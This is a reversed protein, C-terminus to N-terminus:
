EETPEYSIELEKELADKEKQLEDLRTTLEAREEESVEVDEYVGVTVEEGTEENVETTESLVYGDLRNSVTELEACVEVYRQTKETKDKTEENTKEMNKILQEQYFEAKEEDLAETDVEDTDALTEEPMVYDGDWLVEVTDAKIYGKIDGSKAYFWNLVKNDKTSYVEGLILISDNLNFSKIANGRVNPKDYMSCLDSVNVSYGYANQNAIYWEGESLDEEALDTETIGDVSFPLERVVKKQGVVAVIIGAIIAVGVLSGCIIATMKNQKKDKAKQEEKTVVPKAAEEEEKEKEAIEELTVKNTDLYSEGEDEEVTFNIENNEEM